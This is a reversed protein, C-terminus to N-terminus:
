PWALGENSRDHVRYTDGRTIRFQRTMAGQVRNLHARLQRKAMEFEGKYVPADPDKAFLALEYAAGNELCRTAYPEPISPTDGSASLATPQKVYWINLTDAAQPTPWVLIKSLGIVAYHTVNGYAQAPNAYQSQWELLQEVSVPVLPRSQVSGTSTVTMQKIRVVASPVSYSYTGATLAQTTVDQLAETEICTEAYARNLYDKVKQLDATSDLRLKAIVSTQLDAFTSPYAM